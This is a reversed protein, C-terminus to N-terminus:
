TCLKKEIEVNEKNKDKKNHEDNRLEANADNEYKQNNEINECNNVFNMLKTTKMM